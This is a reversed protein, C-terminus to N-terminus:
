KSRSRISEFSASSGDRSFVLVQRWCLNEVLAFGSAALDQVCKAVGPTGFVPHVEVVLRQVSSLNAEAFIESEIGEVDCSIVDPQVEDVTDQFADAEVLIRKSGPFPFLSSRLFDSHIHFELIGKVKAIAKNRIEVRMGNRWVNIEALSAIVPDAEYGVVRGGGSAKAAAISTVGLGSGLDLVSNGPRVLHRALRLEAHEYRNEYLAKRISQLIPPNPAEIVIDGIVFEDDDAHREDNCQSVMKFGRHFDLAFFDRL